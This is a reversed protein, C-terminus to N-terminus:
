VRLYTDLVDDGIRETASIRWRVADSIAELGLAGLAPLGDGGILIPARFWHLTDVLGARIFSAALAGGGELFISKIGEVESRRLLTEPDVQGVGCRWIEVETVGVVADANETTAAM